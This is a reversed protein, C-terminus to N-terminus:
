GAARARVTCPRGCRATAPSSPSSSWAPSATRGRACTRSCRTSRTTRARPTSWRPACPRTAASSRAPRRPTARAPPESRSPSLPLVARLREDDEVLVVVVGRAEPLHRAATALYAPSLFPNPELARDTLRAWRELDDATMTRVPVTRTRLTTM